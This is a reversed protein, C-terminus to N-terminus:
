QCWQRKADSNTYESLVEKLVDHYSSETGSDTHTNEDSDVELVKIRRKEDGAFM